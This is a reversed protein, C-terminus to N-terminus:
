KLDMPDALVVVPKINAKEEKAQQDMVKSLDTVVRSSVPTNMDKYTNDKKKKNSWVPAKKPSPKTELQQEIPAAVVEEQQKQKPVYIM